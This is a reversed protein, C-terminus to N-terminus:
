DDTECYKFWEQIDFVYDEPRAGTKIAIDVILPYLYNQWLVKGYATSCILEDDCGRMEKRKLKEMEYIVRGFIIVDELPMKAEFEIEVGNDTFKM